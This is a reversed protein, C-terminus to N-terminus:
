LRHLRTRAERFDGNQLRYKEPSLGVSRRFLASFSGLSEFGVSLCVSTISLETETLLRRARQIRIRTLYQHPTCGFAQRFTRLLHSPSLCAARAIDNLTLPSDFLAEVYDRARHLRRYLEERTSARVSALASTEKMAECQVKLLKGALLRLHEQLWGPRGSQARHSIRILSLTSSLVGDHPYTRDFFSIPRYDLSPEDLLRSESELCTRYVDEVLGPEFFVCFSEVKSASDVTISYDQGDNLILYCTDDVARYGGGTNYLARGGSFSKISLLGRGSWHHARASEHLIFNRPELRGPAGSKSQLRNNQTLQEIM